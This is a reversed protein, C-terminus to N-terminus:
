FGFTEDMWQPWATSLYTLHEPIVWMLITIAYATCVSYKRKECKTIQSWLLRIGFLRKIIIYTCYKYIHLHEVNIQKDCFSPLPFYVM